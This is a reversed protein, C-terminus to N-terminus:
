VTIFPLLKQLTKPGIGKVNVLDEVIKFKGNLNRYEIIANAKVEGIYPLSILEKKSATNINIRVEQIPQVETTNDTTKENDDKGINKEQSVPQKVDPTQKDSGIQPIEETNIAESAEKSYSFWFSRVSSFNSIILVLILILILCPAVLYEWAIKYTKGRVKIDM